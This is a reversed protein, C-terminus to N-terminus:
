EGQIDMKINGDLGLMLRGLPGREEPRGEM